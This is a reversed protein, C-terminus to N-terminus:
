HQSSILADFMLYCPTICPTTVQINVLVSHRGVVLGVSACGGVLWLVLVWVGQVFMIVWVCACMYVCLICVFVCMYVCVYRSMCWMCACCVCVSVSMCMCTVSVCMCMCESVYVNMKSWTDSSSIMSACVNYMNLNYNRQSVYM